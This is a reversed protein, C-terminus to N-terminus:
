TKIIKQLKRKVYAHDLPRGDLAENAKYALTYRRVCRSLLKDREHRMQNFEIHYAIGRCIGIFTLAVLTSGIIKPYLKMQRTPTLYRWCTWTSGKCRTSEEYARLIVRPVGDREWTWATHGTYRGKSLYKDILEKAM